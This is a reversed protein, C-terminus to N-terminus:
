EKGEVPATSSAPAPEEVKKTETVSGKVNGSLTINQTELNLTIQQARFVDDDQKVQANGSIELIQENKQYVAYAGTCINKKQTLTIAIQLVAINTNQNYEILQADAKVDNETDTLKVNGQLQAVKTERDYSMSDCSFEMKTELNKGVINGTAQEVTKSDKVNFKVRRSIYGIPNMAKRVFTITESSVFTFFIIATVILIGTLGPTGAISELYRSVYDGHGGGANFVQGSLLPNIFKACAISSWIMALMGGFFWKVLSVKYAGMLRLSTFILFLPILFAPFGFCCTIFFYAIYAGISGCTNSFAM